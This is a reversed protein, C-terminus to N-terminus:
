LTELIPKPTRTPLASMFDGADSQNMPPAFYFGQGLSCNLGRLLDVQEITEVGEAIVDIKLQRALEVITQVMSWENKDRLQAIFSGDIKLAGIHFRHLQSLSSYGTGFDDLGLQVGLEHLAQLQRETIEPQGSLVSEHIELKLHEADLDAARLAKEIRMLLDPHTFQRGSLNVNMTLKHAPTGDHASTALNEDMWHRLQLCAEELVWWGLPIILGTEEAVELFDNPPLWGREPHQWRVLAEFGRLAGSDLTVIPQYHVQFANNEVAARLETEMKLRTMAQQHMAVDFIEHRGRGREKARYMAMDADRLLDEAREYLPAKRGLGALAIGISAATFVEHHSNEPAGSDRELMFPRRMERQVREAVDLADQVRTMDELLIAFEDGGLRAVTDGPRLCTELRQGIAILLQDGVLHGLSDNIVKFRDFDLFLVAYLAADSRRAREIRLRLRDMFFARNPLSTLRDHMAARILARENEKRQSVDRANIVLGGVAEDDLLNRCSAEVIQWEGGECGLRMEFESVNQPNEVVHALYYRVREADDPHVYDWLIHGHLGLPASNLARELAPSAYSIAGDFDFACIIAASNEILSRFKQGSRRLKEEADRRESVDSVVAIIGIIEGNGDRHPEFACSVWGRRDSTAVRFETDGSRTSEGQLARQMLEQTGSKLVNPFLKHVPIDAVQAASLGTLRELFQNWLRVKLDCDFVAIGEAATSIVEENFRVAARLADQNEESQADAREHTIASALLEAVQHLAAIESEHWNRDARADNFGLYGWFSDAVMVPVMVWSRLQAAVLLRWEEPSFEHANCAVSEGALLRRAYPELAGCGMALDRMWECEQFSTFGARAWDCVLRSTVGGFAADKNERRNQIQLPTELRFLYAHTSEVAQGLDALLDDINQQWDTRLFQQAASGIARNIAERRAAMEDSQSRAQASQLFRQMQPNTVEDLLLFSTAGAALVAVEFDAAVTDARLAVLILPIQVGARRAAVIWELGDNMVAPSTSNEAALVQPSEALVQPSSVPFTAAIDICVVDTEALAQPTPALSNEVRCIAQSDLCNQLLQQVSERPSILWVESTASEMIRQSKM